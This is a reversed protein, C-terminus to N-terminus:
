IGPVFLSVGTVASGDAGSGGVVLVGYDPDYAVAPEYARGPLGGADDSADCGDVSTFSGDVPDYIELCSVPDAPTAVANYSEAGGVILVRGDALRVMRHGARAVGMQASLSGWQETEPNYLWASSRAEVDADTNMPATTTAGGTLLVRGDELTLMAAGALGAPLAAFTEVGSGDLAVRVCTSTSTWGSSIDAGGCILTGDNGLDAAFSGLYGLDATGLSTFARAARDYYEITNPLEVARDASDYRGLGGWIVVNGLLNEIALHLTRYDNLADAAPLEEWTDTAPDYLGAAKTTQGDYLLPHLPAGGTVLVKGADTGSVTLPTVTAGMRATQQNGDADTYGPLTGAATFALNEDPPALSLIQVADNEKRPEGARNNTVGGGVWFRGNGLAVLLPLQLGEPLAGLWATSETAAVFVQADVVGDSATLPETMGRMALTDGEYGEVAIRTDELPPLGTIEPTAGSTPSGLTVRLADGVAPTLVLDIRDLGEFPSQSSAAVPTLHLTYDAAGGTCGVLVGMVALLM